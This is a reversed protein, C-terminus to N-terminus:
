QQDLDLVLAYDAPNHHKRWGRRDAEILRRCAALILEDGVDKARELVDWVIRMRPTM